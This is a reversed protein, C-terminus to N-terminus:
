KKRAVGDVLVRVGHEDRGEGGKKKPGSNRQPM